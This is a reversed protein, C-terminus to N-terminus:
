GIEKGNLIIIGVDKEMFYPKYGTEIPIVSILKRSFEMSQHNQWKGAEKVWCWCVVKKNENKVPQNTILESVIPM